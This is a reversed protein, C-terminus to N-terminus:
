EEENELMPVGWATSDVKLILCARSHARRRSLGQKMFKDMLDVYTYKVDLYEDFNKFKRNYFEWSM